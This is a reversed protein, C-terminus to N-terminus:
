TANNWLKSGGEKLGLAFAKQKKWYVLCRVSIRLRRYQVMFDKMLIKGEYQVEVNYWRSLKRM